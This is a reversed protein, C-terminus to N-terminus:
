ENKRGKKKRIVMGKAVLGTVTMVGITSLVIMLLLQLLSGAIGVVSDMIKVSPALFLIPLIVMFFDAVEEVQKLKIIGALLLLFLIVIGYVSAPIPLSIFYHLLEAAFSIMGIIGLQFLYKM